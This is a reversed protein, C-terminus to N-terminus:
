CAWTGIGHFAYDIERSDYFPVCEAVAMMAAVGGYEFAEVGMEKAAPKVSGDESLFVGRLECRQPLGADQLRKDEDKSMQILRRALDQLFPHLSLKEYAEKTKILDKAQRQRDADRFEAAWKDWDIGKTKESRRKYQGFGKSM